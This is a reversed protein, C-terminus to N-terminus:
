RCPEAALAVSGAVRGFRNPPYVRLRARGVIARAPLPGWQRSDSSRERNDGIAFYEDAALTIESVGPGEPRDCPDDASGEPVVTVEDGLFRVTEGPLAFIRKVLVTGSAGPDRFVVVEGREPDAFRISIKDVLVREGSRLTPAMSAGQIRFVQGVFALLAWAIAGSVLATRALRLAPRVMAALRPASVDAM